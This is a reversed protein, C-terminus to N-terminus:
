LQFDRKQYRKWGILLALLFLVAYLLCILISEENWQLTKSPSLFEFPSFYCLWQAKSALLNGLYGLLYTTLLFACGLTPTSHKSSVGVALFGISLYLFPIMAGKIIKPFLANLQFSQDGVIFGLLIGGFSTAAMVAFVALFALLVKSCFIQSRTVELSYLFEITKNKEEKLLLNMGFTIAFLSIVILLIHLIMAYYSNYNSTAFLDHIGMLQLYAEPIFELKVQALEQMTSFFMMYLAMFGFLAIAWLLITKAHLRLQFLFLTITKNM